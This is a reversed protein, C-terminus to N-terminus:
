KISLIWLIPDVVGLPNYNTFTNTDEKPKSGINSSHIFCYGGFNDNIAEFFNNYKEKIFEEIDKNTKYIEKKCYKILSLDSNPEPPRHALPGFDQEAGKLDWFQDTKTFCVILNKEKASSHLEDLAIILKNVISHLAMDPSTTTKCLTYLDVLLILNPILSILPFNDKITDITDYTGGQTDYLVLITEKKYPIKFKEASVTIKLLLPEEFFQVTPPPFNGTKLRPIYDREIKDITQQNLALISIWSNPLKHYLAYILSSLYTTKGCGKYGVVAIPYVFAGKQFAKIYTQPIKKIDEGQKCENGEHDKLCFPCFISM